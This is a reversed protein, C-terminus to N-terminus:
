NSKLAKIQAAFYALAANGDVGMKDASAAWMNQIGDLKARLEAQM